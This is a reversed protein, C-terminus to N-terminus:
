PKWEGSWDIHVLAEPDGKICPRKVLRSLKSRFRPPVVKVIQGKREVELAKGTEIAQDLLRYINERLKSATLAM